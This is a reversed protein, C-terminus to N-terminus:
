ACRFAAIRGDDDQHLWCLAEGDTFEVAYAALYNQDPVTKPGDKGPIMQRGLFSISESKGLNLHRAAAIDAELAADHAVTEGGLVARVLERKGADDAADPMPAAKRGHELVKTATSIGKLKVAHHGILTTRSTVEGDFVQQAPTSGWALHFHRGDQELTGGVSAGGGFCHAAYGAAGDDIRCWFQRLPGWTVHGSKDMQFWGPSEIQWFGNFSTGFITVREVEQALATAPLLLFALLLRKMRHGALDAIVGGALIACRHACFFGWICVV